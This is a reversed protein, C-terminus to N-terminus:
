SSSKRFIRELALHCLPILAPSGFVFVNFTFRFSWWESYEVSPPLLNSFLSGILVLVGAFIIVWWGIRHRKLDNISGRIFAIFIKGGSIISLLCILALIGLAIVYSLKPYKFMDIILSVSEFVGLCSLPLAILITEGIFLYRSIKESM